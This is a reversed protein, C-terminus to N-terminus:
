NYFKEKNKIIKLATNTKHKHDFVKFVCGFSGHGLKEIMEYRFAIHDHKVFKYDGSKYNYINSIIILVMILFHNMM